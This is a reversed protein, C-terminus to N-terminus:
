VPNPSFEALGEALFDLRRTAVSRARCHRQDVSASNRLNTRSELVEEIDFTGQGSRAVGGTIKNDSSLGGNLYGDHGNISQRHDEANWFVESFEDRRGPKM